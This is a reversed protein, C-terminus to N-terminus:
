GSLSRSSPISKRGRKEKRNGEQDFIKPHSQQILKTLGMRAQVLNQWDKFSDSNRNALQQWHHVFEWTYKNKEQCFPNNLSQLQRNISQQQRTLKTATSLDDTTLFHFLLLEREVLLACTRLTRAEYSPEWLCILKWSKGLIQSELRVREKIGKKWHRPLLWADFSKDIFERVFGGIVLNQYLLFSQGVYSEWYPNSNLDLPNTLRSLGKALLNYETNPQTKSLILQQENKSIM